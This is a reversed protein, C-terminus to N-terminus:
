ITKITEEKVQDLPSTITSQRHKNDMVLRQRTDHETKNHASTYPMDRQYMSKEYTVLKMTDLRPEVEPLVDPLWVPHSPSEMRSVQSTPLIDEWKGWYGQQCQASLSSM